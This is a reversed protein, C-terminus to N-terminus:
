MVFIDGVSDLKQIVEAINIFLDDNFHMGNRSVTAIALFFGLSM